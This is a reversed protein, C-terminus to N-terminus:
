SKRCRRTAAFVIGISLAPLMSPEPVATFTANVTGGALNDLGNDALMAASTIRFRYSGAPLFSPIGGLLTNDPLSLFEFMWNAGENAISGLASTSVNYDTALQFDVTASSAASFTDTAVPLAAIGQTTATGATVSLTSGDFSAGASSSAGYQDGPGVNFLAMSETTGFINLPDSDFQDGATAETQLSVADITIQALGIQALSFLLVLSLIQANRIM